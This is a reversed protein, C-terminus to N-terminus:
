REEDLLPRPQSRSLLGEIPVEAVVERGLFELLVKVRQGSPMVTTIVGELGHFPGGAIQVPAGSEHAPDIVIAQREGGAAELLRAVTAPEVVAVRTGFQVVASVGSVARVQRHLEPYVFRAFLYGPFLAEVFWVAGRRTSKRFRIQPAFAEVGAIQRLAAAAIHERKPQAKLCFWLPASAESLQQASYTM